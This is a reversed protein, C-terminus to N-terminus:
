ASLPGMKFSEANKVRVTESYQVDLNEFDLSDFDTVTPTFLDVEFGYMLWIAIGTYEAAVRANSYKFAKIMSAFLVPDIDIHKCITDIISERCLYLFISDLSNNVYEIHEDYRMVYCPSEQIVTICKDKLELMMDELSKDSIFVDYNHKFALLGEFVSQLEEDDLWHMYRALLHDNYEEQRVMKAVQSTYYEKDFMSRAVSIVKGAMRGLLLEEFPVGDKMEVYMKSRDKWGEELVKNIRDLFKFTNKGPRIYYYGHAIVAFAEEASFITRNVNKDMLRDITQILTQNTM